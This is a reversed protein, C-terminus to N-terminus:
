FDIALLLLFSATLLAAPLVGAGDRDLEEISLAILGALAFVPAFPLLGTKPALFVYIGVGFVASLMLGVRLARKAAPEDRPIRLAFGLAVPLLASWPFLGHGLRHVAVDHTPFQKAHDVASGLAM